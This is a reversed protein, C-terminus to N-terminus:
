FECRIIFVFIWILQATVKCSILMKTKAVKCIRFCEWAIFLSKERSYFHCNENSINKVIKWNKAWFMSQPYVNSGGWQCRFSCQNHTCTLVAENVDSHFKCELQSCCQGHDLLKKKYQKESKKIQSIIYYFLRPSNLCQVHHSISRLIGINVEAEGWTMSVDHGIGWYDIITYYQM